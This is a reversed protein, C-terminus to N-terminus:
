LRAASAGPSPQRRPRLRKKAVAARAYDICARVDEKTLRPFAAFLDEMDTNEALHQLVTEVPIRTGKVVPKGVMVDPDRIIHDLYKPPEAIAM